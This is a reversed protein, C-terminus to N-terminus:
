QDMVDRVPGAMVLAIRNIWRFNGALEAPDWRRREVVPDLLRDLPIEIVAGPPLVDEAAIVLV